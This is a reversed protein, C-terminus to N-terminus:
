SLLGTLFIDAVALYHEQNRILFPDCILETLPIADTVSLLLPHFRKMPDPPLPPDDLDFKRPLPRMPLLPFLKPQYPEGFSAGPKKKKPLKKSPPTTTSKPVSEDKTASSPVSDPDPSFKRRKHQVPPTCGNEMEAADVKLLGKFANGTM